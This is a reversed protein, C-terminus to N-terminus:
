EPRTSPLGHDLPYKTFDTVLRVAVEPKWYSIITDAPLKAKEEVVRLFM